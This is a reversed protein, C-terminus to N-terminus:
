YKLIVRDLFHKLIFLFMKQDFFHTECYNGLIEHPNILFANTEYSTHSFSEAGNEQSEKFAVPNTM